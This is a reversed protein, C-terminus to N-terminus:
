KKLPLLIHNKTGKGPQSIVSWTGRQANVRNQITVLGTGSKKPRSAHVYGLGDDEVLVELMKGNRQLHIAVQKAQAHKIANNLLEQVIRYLCIELKSSLRKDGVEVSVRVQVTAPAIKLALEELAVALGFDQLLSPMLEFAIRKTDKIAETVMGEIQELFQQHKKTLKQSALYQKLQMGTGYLLQGLNNHLTEAMRKKEEEQTQLVAQLVALQKEQAALANKRELQFQETVNQIHGVGGTVAGQNSLLPRVYINLVRKGDKSVHNMMQLTEGQLVRALQAVIPSSRYDPYFDFASKGIIDQAAIGSLNEMSPNWSTILLDHGVFTFISVPSNSLITQALTQAEQLLQDKRQAEEEALVQQTVEHLICMAGVTEQRGDQLPFLYGDHFREAHHAPRRKVQFYEGKLAEQFFAYETTTEFYPFVETVRRGVVQDRPKGTLDEMYPNWLTYRMEQDFAFLGDISHRVFASHHLLAEEQTYSEPAAQASKRKSNKKSHQNDLFSLLYYYPSDVPHAIISVTCTSTGKSSIGTLQVESKGQPSVHLIAEQLQQGHGGPLLAFVTEGTKQKAPWGFEKQAAMNSYVLQGTQEVLVTPTPVNDLFSVPIPITAPVTM